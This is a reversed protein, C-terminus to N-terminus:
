AVHILFPLTASWAFTIHLLNVLKRKPKYFLGILVSILILSSVVYGTVIHGNFPNILDLTLSTHFLLVSMALAGMCNHYERLYKTLLVVYRKISQPVLRRKLAQLFFFILMEFSMTAALLTGTSEGVDEFNAKEKNLWVYFIVLSIVAILGSLTYIFAKSSKIFTMPALGKRTILEFV